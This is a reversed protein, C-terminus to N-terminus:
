SLGVTAYVLTTFRDLESVCADLQQQNTERARADFLDRLRLERHWRRLRDVNQEEEDLEALTFKQTRIERALEDLCKGCESAFEDWEATRADDYMARVRSATALDLATSRMALVEGANHGVLEVIKAVADTFAPAGPLAWSGQGLQVAGARRLERWVAVRHRSPESPLRIIMVIWTTPDNGNQDMYRM